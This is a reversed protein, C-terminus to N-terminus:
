KKRALNIGIIINRYCAVIDMFCSSTGIIPFDAEMINRIYYGSGSNAGVNMYINLGNETDAFLPIEHRKDLIKKVDIEM